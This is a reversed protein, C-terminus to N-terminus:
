VILMSSTQRWVHSVLVLHIETPIPLASHSVGLISELSFCALTGTEYSPYLLPIWRALSHDQAIQNLGLLHIYFIRVCLKM